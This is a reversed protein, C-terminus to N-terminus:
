SLDNTHKECINGGPWGKDLKQRIESDQDENGKWHSSGIPLSFEPLSTDIEGCQARCRTEKSRRVNFKQMELGQDVHWCTHFNQVPPAIITYMYCMEDLLKPGLVTMKSRGTTNYVCTTKLAHNRTVKFPNRLLRLREHKRYDQYETIATFITSTGKGLDVARWVHIHRGLTRTAHRGINYYRGTWHGSYGALYM